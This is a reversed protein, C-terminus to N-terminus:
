KRKKFLKKLFSKIKNGYIGIAGFLGVIGAILGQIFLSISGPDLYAHVTNTQAILIFISLIIKKM